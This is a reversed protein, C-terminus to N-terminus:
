FVNNYTTENMARDPYRIITIDKGEEDTIHILSALKDLIQHYTEEKIEKQCCFIRLVMKGTEPVQYLMSGSKHYVIMEVQGGLSRQLTEKEIQYFIKGAKSALIQIDYYKEECLPIFEELNQYDIENGTQYDILMRGTNPGGMLVPYLYPSGGALRYLYEGVRLGRDGIYCQVTVPGEQIKLSDTLKQVLEKWKNFYKKAYKSPFSVGSLVIEDGYNRYVDYLCTIYAKGKKVWASVSIEDVPYFEEILVEHKHNLAEKVTRGFNVRVDQINQCIYIGKSGYADVPKIVVPFVFEELETDQFDEKLIKYPIVPFGFKRFHEKMKIKDTLIDIIEPTYFTPLGLKVATEYGPELNRDSFATIIGSINHARALEEVKETDMTSIDYAYKVMEKAPAHAYYDCVVPEMHKAKIDRVLDCFPEIAGLVLVKEM